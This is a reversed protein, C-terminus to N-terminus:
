FLGFQEIYLGANGNEDKVLPLDGKAKRPKATKTHGMCRLYYAIDMGDIEPMTWGKDMLTTYVEM